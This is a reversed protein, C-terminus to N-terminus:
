CPGLDFWVGASVIGLHDGRQQAAEVLRYFLARTLRASLGRQLQLVPHPENNEGATTVTLRHQEDLLVPEDTNLVFVIKQQEGAGGIEMDVALLPTDEVEIRWKEVPTLLYYNGDAERRLISAFLKILPKREIRTGQHYWDGRADIRIDISGSLPPQWKEVPPQRPQNQLLQEIQDLTSM